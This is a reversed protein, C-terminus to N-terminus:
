NNLKQWLNNIFIWGAGADFGSCKRQSVFINLDCTKTVARKCRRTKNKNGTKRNMEYRTENRM